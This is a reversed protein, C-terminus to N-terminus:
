ASIGTYHSQYTRYGGPVEAPGTARGTFILWIAQSYCLISPCHFFRGVLNVIFPSPTDATRCASNKKKLVDAFGVIWLRSKELAEQTNVPLWSRYLAIRFHVNPDWATGSMAPRLFPRPIGQITSAAHSTLLVAINRSAALGALRTIIDEAVPWKRNQLWRKDTWGAGRFGTARRKTDAASPPYASNFLMTMSDIVLFNTGPPLFGSPPHLLLALLHPISCVQLHLFSNLLDDVSEAAEAPSSSDPMSMSKLLVEKFRQGVIPPGTDVSTPNINHSSSYYIFIPMALCEGIWTVRNGGKLANVAISM